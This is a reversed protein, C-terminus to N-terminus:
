IYKIIILLRVINKLKHHNYKHINTHKRVNAQKLKLDHRFNTQNAM